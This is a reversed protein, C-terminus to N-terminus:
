TTYQSYAIANKGNKKVSYMLTDACNVLEDASVSADCCTIVGISFTVPWGNANMKNQLAKSIRTILSETASPETESLLLIFEDGGVRGITDTRRLFQKAQKVIAQLIIDGVNHGMQDNITKFNDVDLYVVSFPRSYREFRDIEKQLAELLTRRNAAGTLEDEHKLKQESVHQKMAPYLWLASIFFGLGIVTDSNVFDSHFFWRGCLFYVAIGLFGCLVSNEVGHNRGLFWSVIVLPILYFLSVPLEEGNFYNAIGIGFALIISSKFCFLLNHKELYSLLIKIM